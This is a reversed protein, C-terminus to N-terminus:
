RSATEQLARIREALSRAPAEKGNSSGGALAERLGSANDDLRATLNVVEAALGTIQERLLAEGKADTTATGSRRQNGLAQRLKRNERTLVELREALRAHDGGADHREPVAAATKFKERLRELERERRELREELESKSSILGDTKKELSSVKRKEVRLTERLAKAEANAERVRVDAEKRDNRLTAADSLLKELKAEQAVMEIQRSSATFSAEDYMEGLKEIEHAREGTLRELAAAHEALRRLEEEKAELGAQVDGLRTQLEAITSDKGKAAYRASALDDKVRGIEIAQEAAKEKLSKVKMEQTRVSMAFEARLGDKEAQIQDMTLPLAAEVRRRTLVVARRWIAPAVLLALFAASLFGLIFSLAAQIM